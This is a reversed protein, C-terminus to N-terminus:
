GGRLTFGDEGAANRDSPLIPREGQPRSCIFKPDRLRENGAAGKDRHHCGRISVAGGWIGTRPEEEKTKCRKEKEFAKSLIQVDREDGAM